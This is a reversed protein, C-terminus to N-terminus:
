VTKTEIEQNNFSYKMKEDTEPIHIFSDRKGSPLM